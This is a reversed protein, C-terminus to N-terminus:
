PKELGRTSADVSPGIAPNTPAAQTGNTSVNKAVFSAPAIAGCSAILAENCRIYAGGSFSVAYDSFMKNPFPYDTSIFNAGSSFALDRRHGNNQRAEETDADARTFTLMERKASLPIRQDQPDPLTVWPDLNANIIALKAPREGSFILRDTPRQVENRFGISAAQSDLLFFAIKGAAQRLTPWRWGGNTGPTIDSPILLQRRSFVGKIESQLRDWSGTVFKSDAAIPGDAKLPLSGNQKTEVFIIIPAHSPNNQSWQAIEMLCKVFLTCTTRQDIDAMHFVKFGPRQMAGESDYPAELPTHNNAVATVFNPHAFRGGEPDDHVDLEVARIGLDLQAALPLHTYNLARSLRTGPWDTSRGYGSSELLWRVAWDPAIHYSNHTAIYQVENLRLNGLKEIYSDAYAPATVATVFALMM